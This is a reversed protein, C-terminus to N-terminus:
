MLFVVELIEKAVTRQIGIKSDFDKLCYRNIHRTKLIEQGM